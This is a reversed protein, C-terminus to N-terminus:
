LLEIKHLTRNVKDRFRDPNTETLLDRRIEDELKYPALYGAAFKRFLVLGNEPGYFSLSRELHEEMLAQVEEPSIEERNRGSFIWPNALAGRGIMVGDCGSAEKMVRIDQVTKIGGNGLVPIKLLKKIEALVELDPLGEHGMEKSRAHVAVLKGGYYEIIGALLDANQCDRWGTRIKATVPIELAATLKKIIRAAALPRRMLGAGAGRGAISRNPCGMNVDIGDPRYKVLELAAQRIVDPDSGYIQFLVPRENETFRIKNRIFDPRQLVDGAKIFETYSVASGLERCLSRFPWSTYGDMPALVLDGDLQLSGVTLTTQEPVM